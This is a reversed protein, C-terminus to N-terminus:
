RRKIEVRFFGATEPDMSGERVGVLTINYNESLRWTEFWERDVLVMCPYHVKTLASPDIGLEAFV